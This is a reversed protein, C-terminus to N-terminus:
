RLGLVRKWWARRPSLVPEPRLAVAAAARVELSESGHRAFFEALVPEMPGCTRWYHRVVDSAARVTLASQLLYSVALQETVHKPYLAHMVDTLALAPGLAARDTPHLGIVGANWMETSGPIRVSSGDPLSLSNERVFRDMKRLVGNAHSDLRGEREHLLATGPVIREFLLAPDDTFYVDSDCYLLRGGHQAMHDALVELKVRHVFDIAGRWATLRAADMPQTHVGPGLDAFADPADTYVHISYRGPSQLAWHQFTLVAFRAEQVIRPRGYAQLVLADTGTGASPEAM